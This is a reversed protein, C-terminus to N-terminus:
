LMGEDDDDDDDDDMLDLDDDEDEEDFRVKKKRFPPRRTAKKKSARKRKENEIEEVGDELVEELCSSHYAIERNLIMHENFNPGIINFRENIDDTVVSVNGSIIFGEHKFVPKKCEACMMFKKVDTKVGERANENLGNM